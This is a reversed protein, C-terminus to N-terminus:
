RVQLFDRNRRQDDTGFVVGHVGLEHFAHRGFHRFRLVQQTWVATVESLIVILLNIAVPKDLENKVHIATLKLGRVKTWQTRAAHQSWSDSSRRTKMPDRGAYHWSTM